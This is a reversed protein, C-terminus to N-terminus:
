QEILQKIVPECSQAHGLGRKFTPYFMGFAVAVAMDTQAAKGWRSVITESLESIELASQDIVANAFKTALRVDDSFHEQDDLLIARLTDKDVNAERALNYVLKVCPGCDSRQTAVLKAAFYAEVPAVKRYKSLPSLLLWGVAAGPTVEALEYIYNLDYDYRRSFRGLILKAIRKKM